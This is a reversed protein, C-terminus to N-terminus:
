GKERVVKQFLQKLKSVFNETNYENLIRSANKEAYIKFKDNNEMYKEFAKFVSIPNPDIFIGNIGDEIVEKYPELNSVIPFCGCAISELLTSSLQDTNPINIVVEALSMLDLMEEETIVRNIWIIEQSIDLLDAEKKILKLYKNITNTCYLLILKYQPYKEHILSFAEIIVEQNYVKKMCRPSFIYNGEKINYENLIKSKSIKSKRINLNFIKKNIGWSHAFFKNENISYKKVLFDMTIKSSVVISTAKSLVRKIIKNFISPSQYIDSGYVISIHPHFKSFSAIFGYTIVYHSILIDPKYKKLIKKIKLILKLYSFIKGLRSYVRIYEIEDPIIHSKSRISVISIKTGSDLLPLWHKLLPSSGNVLMM